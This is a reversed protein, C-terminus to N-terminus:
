RLLLQSKTAFFLINKKRAPLKLIAMPPLQRPQNDGTYIASVTLIKCAKNPMLVSKRSNIKARNSKAYIYGRRNKVGM